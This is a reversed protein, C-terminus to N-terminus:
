SEVRVLDDELEPWALRLRHGGHDVEITEPFRQVTANPTALRPHDTDVVSGDVIFDGDRELRLRNAGGAFQEGALHWEFQSHNWRLRTRKMAATFADLTGAQQVTSCAVAWGTVMGLQVFEDSEKQHLPKLAKIGILSDGVQGAVVTQSWRWRDFRYSPFYLHTYRSRRPELYGKRVRQDHLSLLLNEHQATDPNIGNGVWYAPSFGRSNDDFMPAGPHNAFVNIDRPLSAQWIHQQDGFERPHYRQASSLLWDGTRRTTVNARQISVGQTAPNLLKVATPLAGLPALGELFRLAKIFTNSRLNWASFAKMTVDISEVNTFAEQLWVQLGATDIDLPDDYHDAIETLDLGHSAKITVDEGCAAISRIAAPVRYNDRLVFVAAIREYDYEHDPDDGFVNVLIDNVDAHAPDKKPMEYVRGGTGVFRGGFRHMAMDLMLLDLVITAGAAIDSDASHDILMSLPAVDEEYYTNSLWETYGFRFRDHLWRRLRITGRAIREAGTIGNNTFVEDPYLQGALLECTAFLCQHNESWYCMGDDGPEDMWYKFGLITARCRDVTEASLLHQWKYMTKLIAMMRFDACDIRADVFDCLGLLEAEDIREGAALRAIGRFSKPGMKISMGPDPAVEDHLHM